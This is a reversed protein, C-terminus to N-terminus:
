KPIIGLFVTKVAERYCFTNHYKKPSLRIYCDPNGLGRWWQVYQNSEKIGKSQCVSESESKMEMMLFVNEFYRLHTLHVQNKQKSSRRSSNLRVQKVRFFPDYIYIM